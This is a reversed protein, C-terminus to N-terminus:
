SNDDVKDSNVPRLPKRSARKLLREDKRAKKKQAAEIYKALKNNDKTDQKQAAIIAKRKKERLKAQKADLKAKAKISDLSDLRAWKDERAKIKAEKAAKKEAAIRAREEAKLEEATKVIEKPAVSVSDPSAVSLSDSVSLSDVASSLSDALVEIRELSDLPDSLGLSDAFDRLGLSDVPNVASTDSPVDGAPKNRRANRTEEEHSKIEAYVGAMYGPYYADTYTFKARPRSAYKAKESSKLSRDTISYRDAPREGPRWDFGKLERDKSKIQAIPYADVKAEQFYNVNDITGDKFIASLMKAQSKNVMTFTSDEKLYFIASADGLADFRRLASTSDFFALMETSRIQDYYLGEEHVIIFANSMLSAKELLQNRVVVFISDATYQRENENWVVPNKYMRVLSDLDNYDLSDCVVQMDERFLKVHGLARAFGVKTSDQPVRVLSDALALTDARALSDPIALSDARALSDPLALSDAGSKLPASLSDSPESLQDPINPPLSNKEETIQPLDTEEPPLQNDANDEGKKGAKLKDAKEKAQREPDNKAAEEAKKAAEEAAKKRYATVADAELDALRQNANVIEVSDILCRPVGKYIISDAGFWVSDVKSKDQGSEMLSVVAADRSLVVRSVSDTYFVREALASMNQVSDSLQVNGLMSVDMTNRFFYLSDAWCERDPNMGHVNGYFHFIERERDYWGGDESSLMGDDKWADTGRGFIAYNRNAEYVLDSTKVFISDTFMNVGQSFTFTKIKSDYTGTRSEIIQGQSDRLAGGDRFVAVSDMTNYDLHRTRLTNHDKDELQVLTGRFQALNDDILYTLHDSTLVTEEQLIKVNSIAEIEGKSVCWIATDCILYTNNHLFRAPGTVKRYNVGDKEILQMSQASMLTVLSDQQQEQEQAFLPLSAMVAALTALIRRWCAMM